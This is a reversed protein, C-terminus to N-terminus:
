YDFRGYGGYRGYGSGCSPRPRGCCSPRPTACPRPCTPRPACAPKPACSCREQVPHAIQRTEQSVPIQNYQVDHELWRTVVPQSHLNYIHHPVNIVESHVPAQCASDDVRRQYYGQM